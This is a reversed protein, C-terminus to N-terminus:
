VVSKRDPSSDDASESCSIVQSLTLGTFLPRIYDAFQQEINLQSTVTLSMLPLIEEFTHSVSHHNPRM